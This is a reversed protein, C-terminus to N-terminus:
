RSHSAMRLRGRRAGLRKVRLIPLIKNAAIGSAGGIRVGAKFSRVSFTGQKERDLTHLQVVSWISRAMRCCYNTKLTVPKNDDINSPRNQQSLRVIERCLDLYFGIPGRMSRRLFIFAPFGIGM